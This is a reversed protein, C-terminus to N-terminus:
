EVGVRYFFPGGSANANTYGTTGSQGPINNGIMLFSFPSAVDTSRQVFYTRNSVSQWSIRVGSPLAVASVMRLVSFNNTPITGCIWEQWNNMGDRDPDTYDASGDTALGFSQLWLRFPSLNSLQFEYAGIDVAPGSIRPNGDEDTASNVFGNFGANICPSNSQLRLNGQTENVFLPTSTINGIGAPPLIPTCCYNLNTGTYDPNSPALNHYVICNKLTLNYAGGAESGASNGVLTCNNLTGPVNDGSGAGGISAAVNGRLVCDNLTGGGAGGGGNASNGILTCRYLICDYTGGGWFGASNSVLMCNTLTSSVAGGGVIDAQNVKVICNSLGCGFVGGGQGWSYTACNGVITCDTLNCYAAAGGLGGCNNSIVCNIVIGVDYVGGGQESASNGTIVCNSISSSSFGTIGGGSRDPTGFLTATAGNRITFGSLVAGRGLYVCRIASDGNTENPVQYGVIATVTPGKVSQLLLRNTVAVRNTTLNDILRGGIRYIGNTVLVEDGTLAADVADQIVKAATAWSLYPAVPNTSNVNVYRIAGKANFIFCFGLGIVSLVQHPKM